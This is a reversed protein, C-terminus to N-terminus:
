NLTNKLPNIRSGIIQCYPINLRTGTDDLGQLSIVQYNWVELECGPLAQKVKIQSVCHKKNTKSKYQCKCMVFGM